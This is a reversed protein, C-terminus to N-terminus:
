PPAQHRQAELLPKVQSIAEELQRLLLGIRETQKETALKEIQAALDQVRRAGIQGASSKLPHVAKQLAALDGAQAAALAAALRQPAYEFFLAIMDGAFKEGGLQRLKAIAAVDLASEDIKNM